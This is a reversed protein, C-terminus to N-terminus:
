SKNETLHAAIVKNDFYIASLDSFKNNVLMRYLEKQYRIYWGLIKISSM